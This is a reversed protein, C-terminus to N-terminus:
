FQAYIDYQRAELNIYLLKMIQYKSVQMRLIFITLLRRSTNKPMKLFTNEFAIYKIKVVALLSSNQFLHTTWTQCSPLSVAATQPWTEQGQFARKIGKLGLPAQLSCIHLGLSNVATSLWFSKQFLDLFRLSDIVLRPREQLVHRMQNFNQMIQAQPCVRKDFIKLLYFRM